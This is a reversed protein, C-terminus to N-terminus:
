LGKVTITTGDSDGDSDHNDTAKHTLTAHTVKSVTFTVSGTTNPLRGSTVNCQGSSGTTCSATAGGSWAGSVTANAVTGHPPGADDHVTITVTARWGKGSKNGAGDLDGVHITGGPPTGGPPPTGTVGLAAAVNLRGNTVVKGQLSPTSTASSLIANKIQAGCERAAASTCPNASAYLAAAGTVHPTAMSTGSKMGYGTALTSNIEGGPAGLDVSKAGWNSSSRKNGDKNLAAVAIVNEHEYSSPYRPNADNDRSDNGASAVFLIGADRARAIAEYVAQSYGSGGYSNSSAVINIQHRQKLDILYDLLKPTNASTGGSDGLYKTIIIKVNWAVGAVGSGNGGIAGITGAVHTGHGDTEDESGRDYVTNDGNAFDWGYVDDVYGNGDDDVRNTEKGNGSEGPNRWINAALDPHDFSVGHDTVAVYVAASGTKGAAWAEGAQSGYQNAPSTADGYMGWLSGNTYYPDDSTEDHTYIFNLEAFRVAPDGQLQRVADAIALGPPVRVLELDGGASSSRILEKRVANARGRASGKAAESVGANFQVVVEDPVFRAGPPIPPPQSAAGVARPGAGSGGFLAVAIALVLLFRPAPAARM